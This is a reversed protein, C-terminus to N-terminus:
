EFHIDDVYIGGAKNVAQSDEYIINMQKITTTDLRGSSGNFGSLVLTFSNWKTDTIGVIYAFKTGGNDVLEIKVTGPNQSASQAKANLVLKTLGTFDHPVAIYGMKTPDSVAALGSDADPANGGGFIFCNGAWGPNVKYQSLMSYPASIYMSSSVSYAASPNTPYEVKNPGVNFLNGGLANVGLKDGFYDIRVASIVINEFKIDDIYITGQSPSNNVFSQYSEFVIDLEKMSTLSDLNLFNHLPITVKQWTTTVGGDLFDTIYVKSANRYYTSLPDTYKTKSDNKLQIAFYEGGAAGKVWFTLATSQAAGSTLPASGLNSFYGSFSEKAPTGAVRPISYDLELCKTGVAANGAFSANCTGTTFTAGTEPTSAFTGTNTNWSNCPVANEFDDLLPGPTLPKTATASVGDKVVVTVAAACRIALTGALLMVIIYAIWKRSNM